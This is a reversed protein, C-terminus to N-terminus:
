RTRRLICVRLHWAQGRVYRNEAIGAVIPTEAGVHKWVYNGVYQLIDHALSSDELSSEQAPMTLTLTCIAGSRLYQLANHLIHLAEIPAGYPLPSSRPRFVIVRDELIADTNAQPVAIHSVIGDDDRPITPFSLHDQALIPVEHVQPRVSLTDVSFPELSWSCGIRVGLTGWQVSASEAILPQWTVMLSPTCVSRWYSNYLCRYEQPRLAYAIGLHVSAYPAAVHLQEVPTYTRVTNHRIYQTQVLATYVWSLGIAAQVAMNPICVNAVEVAISPEIASLQVTSHLREYESATLYYQLQASQHHMSIGGGIRYSLAASIPTYWCQIGTRWGQVSFLGPNVFSARITPTNISVPLELSGINYGAGISGHLDLHWLSYTRRLLLTDFANNVILTDRVTHQLAYGTACLYMLACIMVLPTSCPKRQYMLLHSIM